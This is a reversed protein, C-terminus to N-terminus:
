KMHFALLFVVTTVEMLLFIKIRHEPIGVVYVECFVVTKRRKDIVVMSFVRGQILEIEQM